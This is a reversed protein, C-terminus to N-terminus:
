ADSPAITVVGDGLSLQSVDIVAHDALTAVESEFGDPHAGVVAIVTAGAAKGSVVGNLSDEIVVASMPDIGLLAAGALYPESSPKGVRVDDATVLHRPPRIGVLGLRHHALRRGCSTVIAFQGHPAGAVLEAAGPVELIGDRDDLELEEYWRAHRAAIDAPFLGAIVDASPAGAARHVIEDADLDFRTAFARWHLEVAAHSDVLVGDLDCLVGNARITSRM